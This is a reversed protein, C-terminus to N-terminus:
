RRGGRAGGPRRGPRHDARVHHHVPPGQHHRRAPGGPCLRLRCALRDHCLGQLLRGAPHHPRAHGPLASFAEHRHGGYVLRDYIEDSIVLLDHREAIAALARLREPDLVAGTPNNPIAWSSPRPAPRSPRRWPTRTSSGATRRTPRARLGPHRRRLHHGARLRCLLAGGRDGRRRPGRDGGASAALAESSASPSSSRGNRTTPWATVGSSTIRSPGRLELTGYNSTYHTRGAAASRHRGRVVAPPTDFDPEGVGLSIVDPMSNLVDFFKRIGSPPVERVRRSLRPRTAQLIPQSTM